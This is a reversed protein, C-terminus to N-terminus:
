DCFWCGRRRRYYYGCHRVVPDLFAGFASTIDWRRALYGDLWDTFSAVAFLLATLVHNNKTYFSVVMAPIALCRVYTLWDPLRHWPLAPLKSRLLGPPPAKPGLLPDADAMDAPPSNPPAKVETAAAAPPNEPDGTSENGTNNSSSDRQFSGGRLPPAKVQQQPRPLKQKRQRTAMPSHQLQLTTAFSSALSCVLLLQFAVFALFRHYM